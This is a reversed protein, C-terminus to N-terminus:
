NEALGKYKEEFSNNNYELSIKLLWYKFLSKSISDMTAVVVKEKAWFLCPNIAPLEKGM